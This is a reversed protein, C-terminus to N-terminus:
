ASGGAALLARETRALGAPTRASGKVGGGSAFGSCLTAVIRGCAAATADLRAGVSLWLLGALVPLILGAPLLLGKIVNDVLKERVALSDGVLVRVGLKKNIVAYVRWKDGNIATEQFGADHSALPQKPAGNSQGVLNGSLSWIQCSLQREYPRDAINFNRTDQVAMRVASAVDIRRDTILSDVMHAAERLRADLVKEVQAQTSLYIWGVASLWVVGTTVFLILFLRVRISNVHGAEPLRYGVGRVTEIFDSGLKARLHHIHVEVANSEIDEQWGYLREELQARPMIRGPHEMLANLIAFERRSFRM